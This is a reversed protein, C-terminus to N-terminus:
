LIIFIASLLTKIFTNGADCQLCSQGLPQIALVSDLRQGARKLTGFFLGICTDLLMVFM